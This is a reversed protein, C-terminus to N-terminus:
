NGHFTQLEKLLNFPGTHSELTTQVYRKFFFFLTHTGQWSHCVARMKRVLSIFVYVTGTTLLRVFLDQFPRLSLPHPRCARAGCSLRPCLSRLFRELFQSLNQVSVNSGALPSSDCDGPEHGKSCFSRRLSFHEDLPAFVPLTSCNGLALEPKPCSLATGKISCSALFPM